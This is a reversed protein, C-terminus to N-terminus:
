TQFFLLQLTSTLGFALCLGVSAARVYNQPLLKRLGLGLSIAVIGKTTLALTAGVWVVLPLQYRATLNIVTLQGIDGWESLFVAAFAVLAGRSSGVRGEEAGGARSDQRKFWIVLATLFFTVASMLLITKRPLESVAQGVLVAALAKGAFATVVGIFVPLPHFRSTLSSITYIAKDGVLETLLVTLYVSLLLYLM